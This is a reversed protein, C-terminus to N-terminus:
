LGLVRSPVCLPVSASGARSLVRLALPGWLLTRFSPVSIKMKLLTHPEKFGTRLQRSIAGTAGLEAGASSGAQGSERIKVKLIETHAGPLLSLEFIGSLVPSGQGGEGSSLCCHLPAPVIRCCSLFEWIKMKSQWYLQSGEWPEM